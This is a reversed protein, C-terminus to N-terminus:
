LFRKVVVSRSSQTTQEENETNNETDNETNTQPRAEEVVATPITTEDYISVEEGDVSSLRIHNPDFAFDVKYSNSWAVGDAYVGELIYDESLTYTGKYHHWEQSYVKQYMDFSFDEENFKVYVMPASNSKGNWSYLRWEGIVSGESEWNIVVKQNDDGNDNNCAIASLAVVVALFIKTIRMTRFKKCGVEM